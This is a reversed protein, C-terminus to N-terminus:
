WGDATDFQWWQGTRVGPSIYHPHDHMDRTLNLHDTLKQQYEERAWKWREDNDKLRARYEAYDYVLDEWGNPVEVNAGDSSVEAPFRYYYLTITGAADPKPWVYLQADGSFGWTFFMQPNGSTDQNTWGMAEAGTVRTPELPYIQTDGTRVWEVNHVRITDSPLTYNYTSPLTVAITSTDRLSETARAIDRCAENIWRNLETNSWFTATTEDLRERIATRATSLTVTM